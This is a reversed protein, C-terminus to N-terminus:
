LVCLISAVDVGGRMLPVVEITHSLSSDQSYIGLNLQISEVTPFSEKTILESMM